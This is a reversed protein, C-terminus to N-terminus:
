QKNMYNVNIKMTLKKKETKTIEQHLIISNYYKILM